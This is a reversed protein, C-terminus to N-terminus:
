ESKVGASQSYQQIVETPPGEGPPHLGIVVARVAVTAGDAPAEIRLLYDGAALDHKQLLGRGLEAGTANLLTCSVTDVSAKVGVGISLPTDLHIRYLRSAGPALMREEGIGDPATEIEVPQIAVHGRLPAASLSDFLLSTKGTPLYLPLDVAESFIRLQEPQGPSRVRVILPVDSSVAVGAPQQLDLVGAAADNGLVLGGPMALAQATTAAGVSSNGHDDSLWGVVFGPGHELLVSADDQLQLDRGRLVRGSNEIATVDRLGAGDFRLHRGATREVAALHVSLQQTGAAAFHYRGFNSAVLEHPARPAAAAYIGVNVSSANTNYLMVTDADTVTSFTRAEDGSWLTAQARQERQLQVAVGAPLAVRLQQSGGPLKLQQSKGATITLDRNGADLQVSNVADFRFLQLQQPLRVKGQTTDWLAAADPSGASRVWVSSHDAIGVENMAPTNGWPRVGPAGTPSTALILQADSQLPLLDIATTRGAETGIAKPMSAGLILRRARLPQANEAVPRALWLTGQAVAFHKEPPSRLASSISTGALLGEADDSIFLGPRAIDVAAAEVAPDLGELQTSQLGAALRSEAQTAVTFAGGSVNIPHGARSISWVLLRLTGAAADGTPLVVLPQKGVQQGVTQWNDGIRQELALGVDDDSRVTFAWLKGQQAQPLPYYHLDNDQVAFHAPLNLMEETRLPPLRLSVTTAANATGVPDIELRYHGPALKSSIFFNWDDARDDNAAIMVGKADFLRARVDNGGFSSLEVSRDEGIAVALTAPVALERQEGALLEASRVALRYDFRNNPLASTVNLRYSGAKLEAQWLQGGTLTAVDHESSGPLAKQVLTATMGRTLDISATINAPVDFQWQDPARAAGEAPEMWRNTVEQNLSLTHPGHGEFVPAASIAELITVVRADVAQPLIEMRYDGADFHRQFDAAIGPLVVPWGDQDELRATFQRGLGLARLRYDGAQAIHFRYRLGEGAQLTHRLPIAATLEGGDNPINRTLTLGLHGASSGKPQTSLQYLGPDLYRGIRFNRGVGNAQQRDLSTVTRTRLNGETRLLGTSELRYLGPETVRINVTSTQEATTDFFYPHTADLEPFKPLQQLREATVQPLLPTATHTASLTYSISQKSDNRLVFQHRGASLPKSGNMPQGDITYPLDKGDDTVTALTSDASVSISFETTEGAGQLVPLPTDADLPLKRVLVGATVGPQNNLYLRYQENTGIHLQKNFASRLPSAATAAAGALGANVTVIGKGNSGGTPRIELVYLGPDLQQQLSERQFQPEEYDSPRNVMFPQLRLETVVDSARFVYDGRSRVDFFVTASDLLNFRRQWGANEGLAIAGSDVLKWRWQWGDRQAQALIATADVADGPDGSQLTRIWYDGSSDLLVERRSEFYQLTYPQGAERRVTVTHENSNGDSSKLEAVAPVSKKDIAAISQPAGFPATSNFRGVALSATTAQPLELRFYNMAAPVRWRDVGFPSATFRRKVTAPLEPIGLRLYLPHDASTTAWPQEPGGYLTLLYLGPNLNTTLLHSTLPQGAVPTTIETAPTADVLWNGDKWLRVDALNRGAAEIAVTQRENIQLWYSRQQIDDLNNQELQYPSLNPMPTTNLERAPAVQLRVNGSGDTSAFSRLLYDGRELFLDLRGDSKGAEGSLPGPGSMHDVLQLAVGQDSHALISYRGFAPIHLVTQAQGTAPLTAADFHATNNTTNTTTNTTANDARSNCSLALACSMLGYLALRRLLQCTRGSQKENRLM